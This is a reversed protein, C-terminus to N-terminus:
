LRVRSKMWVFSNHLKEYLKLIYYFKENYLEASLLTNTYSDVDYFLCYTGSSIKVKKLKKTIVLKNM